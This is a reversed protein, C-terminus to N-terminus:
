TLPKGGKRARLLADFAKTGPRAVTLQLQLREGNQSVELKRTEGLQLGLSGQHLTGGRHAAGDDLSLRFGLCVADPGTPRPVLDLSMQLTSGDPEQETPGQSLDLHLRRADDGVLLPSALLAGGEDRVEVSYLLQAPAEPRLRGFTGESGLVGVAFGALAICALLLPRRISM